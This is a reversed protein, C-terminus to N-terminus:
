LEYTENVAGKGAMDSNRIAGPVSFKPLSSRVLHEPYGEKFYSNPGLNAPTSSTAMERGSTKKNPVKGFSFKPQSPKHLPFSPNYIAGPTNKNTNHNQFREAQGIKIEPAHSRRM